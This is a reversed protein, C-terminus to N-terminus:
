PYGGPNKQQWNWADRCMTELNSEAKWDLESEAKDTDAFVAPADGERRGLLQHPIRVGSAAEFGKIVDMVSYGQGTGLNHVMLGPSELLRELARIHGKALDVVHIYDRICTGDPTDYDSGFVSLQALAGVAVQTIYPMLNNPIDRPDEGIEGSPHAGVPNFYRLISINWNRDSEALEKLMFEITLKTRGYPNVTRLASEENIPLVDPIGYVTCSSSFVLDSVGAEAMVELLTATGGINNSYYLVPKEVSKGVAKLGAFHIVSDIPEAEFIQRMAARDRLDAQYFQIRKGTLTEVRQLATLKSNSLNDVVVVDYGSDLLELCTHSGIYGAGGTVLIRKKM